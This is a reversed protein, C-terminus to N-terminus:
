AGEARLRRGRTREFFRHNLEGPFYHKRKVWVFGDAQSIVACDVPGAVTEMGRTVRRKISTLNVLAEAMRAMEAKPMFEIMEDLEARSRERMKGFVNSALGDYFTTVAKDVDAEFAAREEIDDFELNQALARSIAPAEQACFEDFREQIDEDIGYLFRDVMDKQAFPLVRAKENKFGIRVDDAKAYRLRGDVVGYLEFSVLAPFMEEHGFGAVVVGTTSHEPVRKSLELEAARVLLDHQGEDADPFGAVVIQRVTEAHGDPDVPEGLFSADQRSGLSQIAREIEASLTERRMDFLKRPLEEQDVVEEDRLRRFLIREVRKHISSLLPQLARRLDRERTAADLTRGYQLLHHLFGDAAEAVTKFRACASRHRKVLVPLPADMFTLGNHIMVGIPDDLTLEFLKDESDFVKASGGGSSITVASDAALAVASKNLIAIEASM